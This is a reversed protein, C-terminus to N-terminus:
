ILTLRSQTQLLTSQNPHCSEYRRHSLHDDCQQPGPINRLFLHVRSGLIWLTSIVIDAIDTVTLILTLSPWSLYPQQLFLLILSDVLVQWVARLQAVEWLTHFQTSLTPVVRHSILEELPRPPSIPTSLTRNPFLHWPTHSHIDSHTHFRSLSYM